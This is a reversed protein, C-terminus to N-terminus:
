LYIFGFFRNVKSTPHKTSRFVKFKKQSVIISCVINSSINIRTSFAKLDVFIRIDLFFRHKSTSSFYLSILVSDNNTCYFWLIMKLKMAKLNLIKSFRKKATSIISNYETGTTSYSIFLFCLLKLACYYERDHVYCLLAEYRNKVNYIRWCSLKITPRFLFVGRAQVVKYHLSFIIQNFAGNHSAINSSLNIPFM